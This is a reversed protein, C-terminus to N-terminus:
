VVSKRDGWFGLVGFGRLGVAVNSNLDNIFELWWGNMDEKGGGPRGSSLAEWEKLSFRSPFLESLTFASAKEPWGLSAWEFEIPRGGNWGALKRM